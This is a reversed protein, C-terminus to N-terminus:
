RATGHVVRRVLYLFFPVGVIGTVIGIPIVEGGPLVMKSVDEAVLLFMAGFVASYPIVKSNTGGYLIRSIHPPVILGVFGILGSVSVVASVSLTTVAIATARVREVRVGISHAHQDGLQLADLSRNMSFAAAMCLVVVVTM